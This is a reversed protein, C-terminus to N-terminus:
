GDKRNCTFEHSARIELLLLLCDLIWYLNLQTTIAM